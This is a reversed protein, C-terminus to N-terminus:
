HSRRRSFGLGALGLGLLALTTPEPVDGTLQFALNLGESEWDTGSTYAHSGSTGSARWTWSREAFDNYISLWYTTGAEAVFPAALDSSFIRDESTTTAPDAAYTLTGTTAHYVTGPKGSDDLYVTFTFSYDDVYNFDPPNPFEKARLGWWHVDRVIADYPLQFNDASRFGPTTGAPTLRSSPYNTADYNPLQEFLVVAHAASGASLGALLITTLALKRTTM